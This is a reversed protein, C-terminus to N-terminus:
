INTSYTPRLDGKMFAIFARRPIKVIKGVCIVPFGLRQPDQKAIIRLYQATGGIVQSVKDPTLVEKDMEEISQLTYM